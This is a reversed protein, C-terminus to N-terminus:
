AVSAPFFSCRVPPGRESSLTDIITHLLHHFIEHAEYVPEIHFIKLLKRNGRHESEGIIRAYAFPRLLSRYNPHTYFRLVFSRPKSLSSTERLKDRTAM